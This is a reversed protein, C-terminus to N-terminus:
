PSFVDSGISNKKISRVQWPNIRLAGSLVRSAASFESIILLARRHTSEPVALKKRYGPELGGGSEHRPSVMGGGTTPGSHLGTAGDVNSLCAEQYGGVGIEKAEASRLISHYSSPIRDQNTPIRGIEQPAGTFAM